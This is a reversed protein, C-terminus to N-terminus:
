RSIKGKRILKFIFLIILPFFSWFFLNSSLDEHSTIKYRFFEWNQDILIQRKWYGLDNQFYLLSDVTLKLFQNIDINLDNELGEIQKLRLLESLLGALGEGLSFDVFEYNIPNYLLLLMEKNNEKIIISGNTILWKYTDIIKSYQTETLYDNMNTLVRLVGISGRHLSTYVNDQYNNHFFGKHTQNNIYQSFLWSIGKKISNSYKNLGTLQQMENLGFLIGSVGQDFGSITEKGLYESKWSGDGEQIAHIFDTLELSWKKLSDDNLINAYKYLLPAIGTIGWNYGTMITVDRGPYYWPIVSYSQGDIVKITIMEKLSNILLRGHDLYSSNETIEYLIMNFYLIGATGYKLDSTSIGNTANPLTYSYPWRPQTTSNIAQSALLWYGEEARRLWVIEKNTNYLNIFSLFIGAPGYKQGPYIISYGDIMKPWSAYKTGNLTLRDNWIQELTFEILPIFDLNISPLNANHLELITNIIGSTGLQHGFYIKEDFDPSIPIQSNSNTISFSTIFVILV